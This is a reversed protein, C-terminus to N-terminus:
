SRCLSHKKYCLKLIIFPKVSCIWLCYTIMCVNWVFWLSVVCRKQPLRLPLSQECSGQGWRMGCPSPHSQFLFIHLAKQVTTVCLNNYGQWCMQKSLGAVGRFAAKNKYCLCHKILVEGSGPVAQNGLPFTTTSM